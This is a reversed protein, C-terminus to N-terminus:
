RTFSRFWPIPSARDATYKNAAPQLTTTSSNNCAGTTNHRYYVAFINVNDVPIAPKFGAYCMQICMLIGTNKNTLTPPPTRTPWQRMLTRCFTQLTRESYATSCLVHHSLFSLLLSLGLRCHVASCMIVVSLLVCLWLVWYLVYDCCEVSCMIVVCLVACLSLVWSHVYDCCEAICM